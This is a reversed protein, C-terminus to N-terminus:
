GEKYKQIAKFVSAILARHSSGSKQKVDLERLRSLFGELYQVFEKIEVESAPRPNLYIDLEGRVHDRIAKEVAKAEELTTFIQNCTSESIWRHDNKTFVYEGNVKVWKLHSHNPVDWRVGEIRAQVQKLEDMAVASSRLKYVGTSHGGWKVQGYVFPTEIFDSGTDECSGVVKIDVDEIIPDTTTYVPQLDKFQSREKVYQIELDVDGMFDMEGDDEDYYGSWKINHKQVDDLTVTSGDQRIYHDLINLSPTLKKVDKLNEVVVQSNRGVVEEGNVQYLDSSYGGGLCVVYKGDMEIAELPQLGTFIQM